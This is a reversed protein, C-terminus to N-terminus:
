PAGAFHGHQSTWTINRVLLSGTEALEERVERLSEPEAAFRDVREGAVEHETHVVASRWVVRALLHQEFKKLWRDAFGTDDIGVKLSAGFHIIQRIIGRDVSFGLRPLALGFMSRTLFPYEADSEPISEIARLNHMHVAEHHFRGIQRPVDGVCEIRGYVIAFYGM